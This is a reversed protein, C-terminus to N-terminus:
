HHAVAVVRLGNDLTRVDYPPFDIDRAELPLPPRERPWDAQQAGAGVGVAAALAAVLAVHRMARRM